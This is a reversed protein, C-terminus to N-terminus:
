RDRRDTEANLDARLPVGLEGNTTLEQYFREAIVQHGDANPHRDAASVRIQSLDYGEYVDFMDVVVFGADRAVSALRLVDESSVNDEQPVYLYVWVPVAGAAGVQRALEGLAWAHVQDRYPQLRRMAETERLESTVGAERVIAALEPWPVAVGRGLQQIIHLLARQADNPTAVFYVANPEFTAVRDLLLLQQLVSYSGVGFNLIEYGSAGSGAFEDNLRQEVIAEFTEGDGVGDGAVYSQGLLAIRYAGEPPTQAYDRDRMAWRNTRFSNGRQYVSVMPRMERGIFSESEELVGAQWIDLGDEGRQAFVDFLAPNQATVNVLEEYYGREMLGADRENLEPVSLDRVFRQVQTGLMPGTSPLAVLCLGALGTLPIAAPGWIGHAETSRPKRDNPSAYQEALVAAVAIGILVTLIMGMEVMTPPEVSILDLWDGVTPTNWFTWLFSIVTFTAATRVGLSLGRRLTMEPRGLSRVRGQRLERLADFVLFFALIAWFLSDPWSLNWQGLIWYWQYSHTVWTVFFVALTGVILALREGRARLPLYTPYFVVKMMFDKWYINIRRWFDTFSSALYFLHHTEPLRFGFLHMLGVILHFLGSVKLYLLFTTLVYRLLDASTTVDEPAITLYQYVIRYALLHVIGRFIWNLGRQYTELADTAYHTRKFTAFDVVPFFPFVVNPVMFFYALAWSPSAPGRAHRLDYLYIVVRFMLMSGFIPWLAGSWPSTLVGSRFAAFGGGAALVAALRIWYPVPLHCLAIVLLVLGILWLGQELGFVLLVSALSLAVFFPLRQAMPLLHHLFFGFVLLPVVSRYFAPNEIQFLRVAFAFLLVQFAVVGFRLIGEFHASRYAEGWHVLLPKEAWAPVAQAALVLGGLMLLIQIMGLGVTAAGTLLDATAALVVVCVGLGALVRHLLRFENPAPVEAGTTSTNM